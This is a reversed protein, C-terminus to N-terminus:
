VESVEHRENKKIQEYREGQRVSAEILPFFRKIKEFDQPFTRKIALMYLPMLSRFSFGLAKNEASLPLKNRENYALIEAKTFKAVPYIRGRREDITGSEKIMARRVISDAIREGAAIWYIGTEVRLWNYAEVTKVIQVSPDFARFSGYRLFESLMFHPMRIIETKYKQEYYRLTREQFELDPVIYMFYPQVAKFYRFCLDLCAASDKGGSFGVLVADTILSATKVTDYISM